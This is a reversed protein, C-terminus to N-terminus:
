ELIPIDNDSQKIRKPSDTGSEGLKRKACDVCSTGLLTTSDVREADPSRQKCIQAALDQVYEPFQQFCDGYSVVKIGHLLMDAQLKFFHDENEKLVLMYHELDVKNVTYLFLAQFIQDRLTEGCGLFLFSKTRYLNQLVEMVEPDQTVDKYGSPDLVMGCPDTYLGHIHLVGYKVHGRAWQLVKDKDKLDLSEMPKGQQQGFIELLNDYNTTLVMTGREMLRLISQLVVPNQIHQELNDFVEMLCDQFFNPKTDGTRPSMKRILDHAVVLLDREKIVKNRFEAVDRPHLVELQEAAGLVAEICSRWSCLAPIGPAVAASVGTGIVLLLDQPQKRVLSKRSCLFCFHQNNVACKRGQRFLEPVSELLEGSGNLVEAFCWGVWCSCLEGNRFKQESRITAGEPSDM